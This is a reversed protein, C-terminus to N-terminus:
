NSVLRIGDIDEADPFAITPLIMPWPMRPAAYVTNRHTQTDPDDPQGVDALGGKEIRQGLVVSQGRIVRERGDLGIDPDHTHGIGTEVLQGFDKTRRLDQGGRHVEDVDRADHTAGGGSLPQAVLEEGVDPLAMGDALDNPDELVDVDGVDAATDLGAPVDLRDVGLQDQGIQLGQFPRYGAQLLCGPAVVLVLACLLGQLSGLFG